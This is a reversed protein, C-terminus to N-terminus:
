NTKKGTITSVLAAGATLLKNAILPRVDGALYFREPKFDLDGM